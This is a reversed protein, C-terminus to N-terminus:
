FWIILVPIHEACHFPILREILIIYVGHTCAYVRAFYFSKNKILTYSM